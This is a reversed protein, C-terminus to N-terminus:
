CGQNIVAPESLAIPTVFTILTQTGSIQPDVKGFTSVSLLRTLWRMARRNVLANAFMETSNQPVALFFRRSSCIFDSV